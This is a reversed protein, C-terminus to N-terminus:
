QSTAQIQLFIMMVMMMMMMIKMQFEMEYRSVGFVSVCEASIQLGKRYYNTEGM